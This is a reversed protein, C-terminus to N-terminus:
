RVAVSHTVYEVRTCVSTTQAVWQDEYAFTYLDICIDTGLTTSKMGLSKAKRNDFLFRDVCSTWHM